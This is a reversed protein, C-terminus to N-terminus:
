QSGVFSRGRTESYHSWYVTGPHRGSLVHYNTVLIDIDDVRVVFGTGAGVRQSFAYLTLQLSGVSKPDIRPPM